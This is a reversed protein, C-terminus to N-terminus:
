WEINKSHWNSWYAHGFWEYFGELIQQNTFVEIKSLYYNLGTLIEQFNDIFKEKETEPIDKRDFYEVAKNYRKLLANYEQKAEAITM